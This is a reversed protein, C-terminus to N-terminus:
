HYRALSNDQLGLNLDPMDGAWLQSGIEQQTAVQSLVQSHALKQSPRCLHFNRFIFQQNVLFMYLFFTLLLQCKTKQYTHQAMPM